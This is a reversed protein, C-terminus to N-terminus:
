PVYFPQALVTRSALVLALVVAPGKVAALVGRLGSESEPSRTLRAMALIKGSRRPRPRRDIHSVLDAALILRRKVAVAQGGRGSLVRDRRRRAHGSLKRVVHRM